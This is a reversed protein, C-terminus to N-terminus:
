DNLIKLAKRDDMTRIVCISTRGSGTTGYIEKIDIGAGAIKAAVKQLQGVKNPMELLIVDEETIDAGMKALVKKTKASSDTIMMFVASKGQVYAAVATINVKAASLATSVEELLGVKNPMVFRIQKAKVAKAMTIGGKLVNVQM